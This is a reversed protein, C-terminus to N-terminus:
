APNQAADKIAVLEARVEEWSVLTEPHEDAEKMRRRIETDWAEDYGPDKEVQEFEISELIWRALTTRERTSLAAVRAFLEDLSSATQTM